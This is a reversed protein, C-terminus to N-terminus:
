CEPFQLCWPHPPHHPPVLSSFVPCMRPKLGTSFTLSFVLFVRRQPGPAIKCPTAKRRLQIQKALSSRKESICCGLLGLATQWLSPALAPPSFLPCLETDGWLGVKDAQEPSSRDSTKEALRRPAKILLVSLHSGQQSGTSLAVPGPSPTNGLPFSVVQRERTIIGFLTSVHGSSAM